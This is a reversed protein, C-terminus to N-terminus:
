RGHSIPMKHITISSEKEKGMNSHFKQFDITITMLHGVWIIRHISSSMKHNRLHVWINFQDLRYANNKNPHIARMAWNWFTQTSGRNILSALNTLNWRLARKVFWICRKVLHRKRSSFCFAQNYWIFFISLIAFVDILIKATLQIFTNTMCCYPEFIHTFLKAFHINGARRIIKSTM